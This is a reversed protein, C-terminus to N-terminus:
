DERALHKLAFKGGINGKSAIWRVEGRKLCTRKAAVFDFQARTCSGDLFNGRLHIGARNAYLREFDKLFGLLSDIECLGFDDDGDPAPDFFLFVYFDGF